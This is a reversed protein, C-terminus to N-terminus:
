PSAGRINSSKSTCPSTLGPRQAEAVRDAAECLKDITSIGDPQRLSPAQRWGSKDTIPTAASPMPQM